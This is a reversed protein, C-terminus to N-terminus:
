TVAVVAAVGFGLILLRFGLDDVRLGLAGPNLIKVGTWNLRCPRWPRRSRRLLLRPKVATM